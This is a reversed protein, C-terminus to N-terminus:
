SNPEQSVKQELSKEIKGGFHPNSNQHARLIEVAKAVSFGYGCGGCKILKETAKKNHLNGGNSAGCYGCDYIYRGSYTCVFESERAKAEESM